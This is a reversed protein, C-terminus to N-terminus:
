AEVELAGDGPEGLSRARREQEVIRACMKM